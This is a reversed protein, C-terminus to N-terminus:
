LLANQQRLILRNGDPDRFVADVGWREDKPPQEFDVGKTLLRDYDAMLDETALILGRISGPPASPLGCILGLLTGGAEPAVVVLRAGRTTEDRRLRLGLKGVYFAKARDPDAVPVWIIRIDSIPMCFHDANSPQGTWSSNPRRAM